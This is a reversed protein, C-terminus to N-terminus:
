VSGVERLGLEMGLTELTWVDSRWLREPELAGAHEVRAREGFIGRTFFDVAFFDLFSLQIFTASAL